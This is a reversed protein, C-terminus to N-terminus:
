FLYLEAFEDNLTVKKGGSNKDLLKLLLKLCDDTTIIGFKKSASSSSLSNRVLVASCKKDLMLRVISEVPTDSSVSEIPWSMFDKVEHESNFEVQMDLFSVGSMDERESSVEMARQLDRDSIIGIVDQTHDCVPLHRIKHEVMLQYAKRLSDSLNVTVLNRSMIEKALNKM